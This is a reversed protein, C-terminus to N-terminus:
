YPFLSRIIGDPGTRGIDVPPRPKPFKTLQEWARIFEAADSTSPYGDKTFQRTWEILKSLQRADGPNLLVYGTNPDLNM